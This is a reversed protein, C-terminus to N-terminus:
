NIKAYSVSYLFGLFSTSKLFDFGMGSIPLSITKGAEWLEFRLFNTIDDYQLRAGSDGRCETTAGLKSIYIRLKWESRFLENALTQSGTKFILLIPWM